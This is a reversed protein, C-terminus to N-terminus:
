VGVGTGPGRLRQAQFDSKGSTSGPQRQTGPLGAQESCFPKGAM